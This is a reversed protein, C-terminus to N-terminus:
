PRPSTQLNGLQLCYRTTTRLAKEIDLRPATVRFLSRTERGNNHRTSAAIAIFINFTSQELLNCLYQTRSKKEHFRCLSAFQDMRHIHALVTYWLLLLACFNVFIRHLTSYQRTKKCQENNSCGGKKPSPQTSPIILRPQSDWTDNDTSKSWVIQPAPDKSFPSREPFLCSAPRQMGFMSGSSSLLANSTALM